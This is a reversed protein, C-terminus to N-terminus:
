KFSKNKLDTLIKRIVMDSVVDTLMGFIQINPDLLGLMMKKYNELESDELTVIYQTSRWKEDRSRELNMRM